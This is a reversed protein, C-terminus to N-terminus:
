PDVGGSRSGAWSADDITLMLTMPTKALDALFVEGGGANQIINM